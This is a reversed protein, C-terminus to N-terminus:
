DIREIDGSWYNTGLGYQDIMDQNFISYGQQDVDFIEMKYTAGVKFFNSGKLEPCKVVVPISTQDYGDVNTMIVEFQYAQAVAVTGCDVQSTPVAILKGTLMYRNGEMQSFSSFGIVLFVVSSIFSKM